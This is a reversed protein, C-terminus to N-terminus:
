VAAGHGRLFRDVVVEALEEYSMNNGIDKNPDFISMAVGFFIFKSAIGTEGCPKLEGRAIGEDMLQRLIEYEAFLLNHYRLTQEKLSEPLAVQSFRPVVQPTGNIYRVLCGNSASLMEFCIIQWLSSNDNYFELMEKFYRCLKPELGDGGQVAQQLREVFPANKDAVLKYFLQEKNGFYKYVTGKGVDALRIIEDLTAKEYGFRSFVYEAAQLIRQEKPLGADIKM